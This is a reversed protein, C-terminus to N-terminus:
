FPMSMHKKNASVTLLPLPSMLLGGGGEEGRGCVCVGDAGEAALHVQRSRCLCVFFRGMVVLKGGRGGNRRAQGMACGYFGAVEEGSVSHPQILDIAATGTAGGAAAADGGKSTTTVGEGSIVPPGGGGGRTNFM